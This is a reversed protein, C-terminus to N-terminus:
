IVADAHVHPRYGLKFEEVLRDRVAVIAELDDLGFADTTGLTVIFAAIKKGQALVERARQELLPVQMDNDLHTPIELLCREGLGL